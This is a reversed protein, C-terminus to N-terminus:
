PFPWPGGPRGGVAPVRYLFLGSRGDIGGGFAGRGDTGGSKGARGGTRGLDFAMGREVAPIAPILSLGMGDGVLSIYYSFPSGNVAIRQLVDWGETIITMFFLSMLVYVTLVLSPILSHLVIGGLISVFFNGTLLVAITTLGYILLFGTM